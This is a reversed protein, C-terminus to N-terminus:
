RKSPNKTEGLWIAALKTTGETADLAVPNMPRVESTTSAVVKPGGGPLYTSVWSTCGVGEQVRPEDEETRDM